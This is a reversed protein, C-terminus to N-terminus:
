GKPRFSDDQYARGRLWTMHQQLESWACIPYEISSAKTVYALTWRDYWRLWEGISM